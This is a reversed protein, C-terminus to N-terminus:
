HPSPLTAIAGSPDTHGHTNARHNGTPLTRSSDSASMRVPDLIVSVADTSAVSNARRGRFGHTGFM